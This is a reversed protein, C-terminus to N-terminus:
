WLFDDTAKGCEFQRASTPTFVTLLIIREFVPGHPVSFVSEKVRAIRVYLFVGSGSVRRESAIHTSPRGMFSNTGMNGPLYM